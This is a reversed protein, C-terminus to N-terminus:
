KRNSVLLQLYLSEINQLLYGPISGQIKNIKRVKEVEQVISNQIINDEDYKPISIDFNISFSRDSYTYKFYKQIISTNLIGTLYLAESRSIPNGNQDRSIFPAHKVPFLRQKRSSNDIFSAVMKTNDRFVVAYDFKSYEGIKSLAYFEKGRAMMKSRESQSDIFQKQNSLYTLSNPYFRSLERYSYIQQEDNYPILGWQFDEKIDFSRINSSQLLPKVIGDELNLSDYHTPKIKTLKSQVNSYTGDDNKEFVFVERPTLEVGQRAKYENTGDLLIFKEIDEETAGFIRSYRNSNRSLQILTGSEETFNSKVDNWNKNRNIDLITTGREFSKNYKLLKVEEVESKRIYYTLFKEQVPEFPNGSNTWDNVEDLYLQAGDNGVLNRWGEYSDSNLLTDPMLFALVGTESLWNSATVNSILAALNLNIGGGLGKNKGSFLKREGAIEKIKNSYLKPLNEWKVWPPNGAIIDIDSIRTSLVFNSIIKLWIGDWNKQKLSVLVDSFQKIKSELELSITEPFENRITEFLLQSDEINIYTQWKYVKPLFNVSRVFNLPFFLEITAKQTDINYSIYDIDDEIFSKPLRASDGLYFPIEIDRGDLFPKISLLYSVRGALVSLPNLDIGKVRTLVETLIESKSSGQQLMDKIIYSIAKIVFTGSGATPDLFTWNPNKTEVKKISSQVVNDALWDPTFVEGFAKRVKSPIALM